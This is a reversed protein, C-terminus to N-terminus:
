THKKECKGSILDRKRTILGRCVPLSNVVNLQPHRKLFSSFLKGNENQINPDGPIVASGLWANLDGQLYFGKGDKWAMDAVKDLYGWFKSKKLSSDRQQPGYASTCSIIIKSPHIDISIAEVEDNGEATLVPNLNKKAAIAVGGGEKLERTKEFIIFDDMKLQNAQSCKTEQMTWLSAGSQRIIKKWTPWKSRAGAPNVGAFVLMKSMKKQNNRKGRRINGIEKRKLKKKM